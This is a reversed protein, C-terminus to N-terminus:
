QRVAVCVTDTSTLGVAQRLLVFVTLTNDSLLTTNNCSIVVAAVKYINTLLTDAM